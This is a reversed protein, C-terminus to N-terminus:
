VCSDIDVGVHYAAAAAARSGRPWLRPWLRRDRERQGWRVWAEAEGLAAEGDGGLVVDGDGLDVLGLQHVDLLYLRRASRGRKQQRTITKAARPLGRAGRFRGPSFGEGGFPNKVDPFCKPATNTIKRHM